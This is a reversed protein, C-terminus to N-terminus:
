CSRLLGRQAATTLLLMQNSTDAGRGGKSPGWWLRRDAGTMMGDREEREGRGGWRKGGRRRRKVASVGTGGQVQHHQTSGLRRLGLTRLMRPVAQRPPLLLDVDQVEGQRPKLLVRAQFTLTGIPCRRNCGEPASRQAFGGRRSMCPGRATPAQRAAHLCHDSPPPAGRRRLCQM